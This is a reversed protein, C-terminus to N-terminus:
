ADKRRARSLAGPLFAVTMLAHTAVVLPLLLGSLTGERWPIGLLAAAALNYVFMGRSISSGDGSLAASWCAFGMTFIAAGFMRCILFELETTPQMGVVLTCMLSPVALFGLGASAEFIAAIFLVFRSMGAGEPLGRRWREFM